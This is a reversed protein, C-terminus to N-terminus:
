KRMPMGDIIAFLEHLPVVKNARYKETGDKGILIVAFGAPKVRYKKYLADGDKVILLELDRDKVAQPDEKLLKVQQKVSSAHGLGEFILLQRYPLFQQPIGMIAMTILLYFHMMMRKSM